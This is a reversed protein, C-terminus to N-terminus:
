MKAVTVYTMLNDVSGRLINGADGNADYGIEIIDDAHLYVPLSAGVLDPKRTGGLADSGWMVTPMPFYRFPLGDVYLLWVFKNVWSTGTRSSISIMYPGDDPVQIMGTAPDAAMNTSVEQRLDFFDPPLKNQGAAVPIQQENTRVMTAITGVIPAPENDNAFLHSVNPVRNVGDNADNWLGFGVWRYDEGILSVSNNDVFTAVVDNGVLFQFVRAGGVTGARFTIYPGLEVPVEIPGTGTGGSGFWTYTGGALGGNVSGVSVKNGNLRAICLNDFTNDARAILFISREGYSGFYKGAHRPVVVSVESYDTLLPSPTYRYMVLLDDNSLEITDGDNTVSGSGEIYERNFEPPIVQNYSSVDVEFSLGSNNNAAKDAMLAAVGARLQLQERKVQAATQFVDGDSWGSQSDGTFGQVIVDRLDRIWKFPDEKDELAAMVSAATSERGEVNSEDTGSIATTIGDLSGEPAMELADGLAAVAESLNTPRPVSFMESIRSESYDQGYRWEGGGIVYAEDPAEQHPTTM